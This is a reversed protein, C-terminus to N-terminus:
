WWVRAGCVLLSCPIQSCAGASGALAAACRHGPCAPPARPPPPPPPPLPLLLLLPLPLPLLLPLLLPLFLHSTAARTLTTHRLVAHYSIYQCPVM